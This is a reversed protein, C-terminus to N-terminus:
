SAYITPPTYTANTTVQMILGAGRQRIGTGFGRQYFSDILPYDPNPGKVLRLGRVAPNAHERFGIPNTLADRGGTAFAVMYGAPIYDEEVILLYGYSGVVKLGRWTSPPTQGNLLVVNDPVFEPPMQPSPIFDYTAGTAVRFTRIRATQASNCLVVIQAGSTSDHGHEAIHNYIEDLDGSDVTAAGSTIYHNHTGTFTKAKQQPPVTGDANYFAYVPYAQGDITAQRNTNRFLTRMVQIFVLRNDAELAANNVADVQAAPADVLFKWTFRAALDYWKFDFGMNFFSGGPRISKPVGFESAEEFDDGVAAQPVQEVPSQVPYTLLSVLNSREANFVNLATQYDRWLDNIPRGDLTQTLLDGETMFGRAGGAIGPIINLDRLRVKEHGPLPVASFAWAPLILPEFLSRTKSTATTM